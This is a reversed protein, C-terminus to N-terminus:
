DDLSPALADIGPMRQLALELILESDSVSDAKTEREPLTRSRNGRHMAKSTVRNMQAFASCTPKERDNKAYRLTSTSVLSASFIGGDLFVEIRRASLMAAM